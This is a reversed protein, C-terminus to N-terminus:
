FNGEHCCIWTSRGIYTTRKRWRSRNYLIYERSYSAQAREELGPFPPGLYKDWNDLNEGSFLPKWETSSPTCSVLLAYLIYAMIMVTYKM